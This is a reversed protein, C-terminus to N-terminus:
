GSADCRTTDTTTTRGVGPRTPVGLPGRDSMDEGLVDTDVIVLADRPRDGPAVVALLPVPVTNVERDILGFDGTIAAKGGATPQFNMVTTVGM